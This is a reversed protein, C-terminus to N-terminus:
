EDNKERVEPKREDLYPGLRARLKDHARSLRSLVTGVPIELIEATQETSYGDIMRLVLVSRHKPDLSLIARHLLADQERRDYDAQMDVPPEPLTDDGADRSLFRFLRRKRRRIANLSLNVAIRTLYTGVGAEGRFAGLSTYFNIFVEQCIDDIEDSPGMMGVVTAAVQREFREVIRRFAERDGERARRVLEEDPPPVSLPM